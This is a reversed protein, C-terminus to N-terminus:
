AVVAEGGITARGESLIMRALLEYAAASRSGRASLTVPLQLGASEAAAVEFPIIVDRYLAGPHLNALNDRSWCYIRSRPNALVFFARLVPPRPRISAAAARMDNFGDLAEAGPTCPVIVLHAARLAARVSPGLTPPTDVLVARDNSAVVELRRVLEDENAAELARGGPLLELSGASRPMGPLAVGVPGAKLPDGPRALGYRRTLTAQPDLDVMLVNLGIAALIQGLAAVTSTKATGGKAGVVAYVTM